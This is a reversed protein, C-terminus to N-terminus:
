LDRGASTPADGESAAPVAAIIADRLARPDIGPHRGQAIGWIFASVPAMPRVFDRAIIGSLGHIDDISVLRPEVGVVACVSEVWEQWRSADLDSTM